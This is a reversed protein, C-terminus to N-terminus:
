YRRAWHLVAYDQSPDISHALVAEAKRTFNGPLVADLWVRCIGSPEGRLYASPASLLALLAARDNMGAGRAQLLRAADAPTLDPLAALVTAPATLPDIGGQPNFVTVFPALREVDDQTVGLVYVLEDTSRFPSDLPVYAAGALGYQPLEAGEPLPDADEDRWDIVRAAFSDPRMSRGGIAAYIGALLAADAANLDVLAAEDRAQIRVLGDGIGIEAGDLAVPDTHLIFLSYGAFVLGGELLAEAAAELAGIRALGLSPRATALVSAVTAALIAIFALAAITAYGADRSRKGGAM